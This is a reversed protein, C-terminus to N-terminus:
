PRPAAGEAAHVIRRPRPKPWAIVIASMLAPALAWGYGLADDVILVSGGAGPLALLATALVVGLAAAASHLRGGMALRFGAILALVIAFALVLGWPASLRHTFTLVAGVVFGIAGAFAVGLVDLVVAVLHLARQQPQVASV